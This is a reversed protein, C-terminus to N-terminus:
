KQCKKCIAAMNINWVPLRKKRQPGNIMVPSPWYHDMKSWFQGFMAPKDINWCPRFPYLITLRVKKSWKPGDPGKQAM